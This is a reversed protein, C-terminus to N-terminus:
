AHAHHRIRQQQLAPTRALSDDIAPHECQRCFAILSPMNSQLREKAILKITRITSLSVASAGLCCAADFPLLASAFCRSIRFDAKCRGSHRDTGSTKGLMGFRPSSTSKLKRLLYPKPWFRDTVITMGGIHAALCHALRYPPMSWGLYTPESRRLQAQRCVEM